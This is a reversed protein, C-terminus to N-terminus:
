EVMQFYNKQHDIQKKIVKDTKEEITQNAKSILNGSKTSFKLGLIKSDAIPMEKQLGPTSSYLQEALEQMLLLAAGPKVDRLKTEEM